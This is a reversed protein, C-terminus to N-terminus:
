LAAKRQSELLRYKDFIVWSFTFVTMGEIDCNLVSMHRNHVFRGVSDCGDVHCHFDFLDWLWARFVLLVSIYRVLFLAEELFTLEEGLDRDWPLQFGFLLDIQGALMREHTNYKMEFYLLM